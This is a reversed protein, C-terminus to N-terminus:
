HIGLETKLRELEAQASELSSGTFLWEYPV